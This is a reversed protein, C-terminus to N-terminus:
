LPLVAEHPNSAARPSRPRHHHRLPLGHSFGFDCARFGFRIRLVLQSIVLVIPLTQINRCQYKSSRESKTSRFESKLGSATEHALGDGAPVHAGSAAFSRRRVCPRAIAVWDAPG